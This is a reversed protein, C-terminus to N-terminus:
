ARRDLPAAGLSVSERPADAVKETLLAVQADLDSLRRELRLVRERLVTVEPESAGAAPEAAGDTHACGAVLWAVLACSLLRIHAM